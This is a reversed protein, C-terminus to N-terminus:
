TQENSREYPLVRIELKPETQTAIVDAPPVLYKSMPYPNHCSPVLVERVGCRIMRLVCETCPMATLYMKSGILAKGGHAELAFWLANEDAHLIYAYKDPRTNWPILNDDLQPPPGNFAPSLIRNGEGVLMAGVQTSNDKSRQAISFCMDFFVNDWSEPVRIPPNM